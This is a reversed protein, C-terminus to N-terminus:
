PGALDKQQIQVDFICKVCQIKTCEKMFSTGNGGQNKKESTKAKPKCYAIIQNM